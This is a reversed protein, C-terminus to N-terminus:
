KKKEEVASPPTSVSAIEFDILNFRAFDEAPPSASEIMAVPEPPSAGPAVFAPEEPHLVTLDIDVDFRSAPSEIKVSAPPTPAQGTGAPRVRTKRRANALSAYSGSKGNAGLDFDMLSSKAPVPTQGIEKAIGYLLLLERYAELGFVEAQGGPERFVAEEIVELVRPDPWLSVIRALVAEHVELGESAEAYADFPPIEANFLHSFEERLSDFESRRKLQHYLNFLDLYVLASTQSESIHSRLVAVAQEHRGVSIFFEAQHQVDFLEEANVARPVHPMSLAFDSHGRRSSQKFDPNRPAASRPPRYAPVEATNKEFPVSYLLESDVSSGDRAMGGLASPGSAFWHDEATEKKAWWPALRKGPVLRWLVSAAIVLVLATLLGGIWWTSERQQQELQAQLDVMALQNKKSEAGLRKLEAEFSSTKEADRLVDEPGAMLAKWWAAAMARQGANTETPISLERSIKLEPSTEVSLDLPELTLRAGPKAAPRRAAISTKNRVVGEDGGRAVVRRQAPVAAARSGPVATKPLKSAQPLEAAAPERPTNSPAVVVPAQPVMPDALFVFRREISRTCGARLQVTVVPENVAVTTRVRIMTDRGASAKDLSVRVRSNELRNEGYFVDASVCSETTAEAGELALPISILLSQGLFASGQSGGLSVASANCAIFLFAGATFLRSIIM